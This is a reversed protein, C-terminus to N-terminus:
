PKSPPKSRCYPELYKLSKITALVGALNVVREFIIPLTVSLDKQQSVVPFFIEGSFIRDGIQCRGLLSPSNEKIHSVARIAFSQIASLRREAGVARPSELNPDAASATVDIGLRSQGTRIAARGFKGVNGSLNRKPYDKQFKWEPQKKNQKGHAKDQM